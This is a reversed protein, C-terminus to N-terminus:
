KIIILYNVIYYLVIVIVLGLITGVITETLSHRKLKIRSWAVLPILIVFFWFIGGYLIGLVAAFASYVALHISAKIKRNVFSDILVGLLLAGLTAMLIKPGHLFFIIFFYLISVIAAFIFIPKRQEKISIDFDSFMGRKVGYLVFLGITAAFLLSAATWVIAYFANNSTKFVLAYSVPATIILPSAIMSIIRALLIM